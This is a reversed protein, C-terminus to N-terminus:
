WTIEIYRTKGNPDVVPIRMKKNEKEQKSQLEVQELEELEVESVPRIECSGDAQIIATNGATVSQTEIKDLIKLELEGETVIFKTQEQEDFKALFGTGKVSAVTTPTQVAFPGTDSKIQSFVSGKNLKVTKSLKKDKASAYVQVISYSFVKVTASGDIYKYAAFSEKGTRIEDNNQLFDGTKHKIMKAARHLDVKGKSASIVAVSDLALLNASLILTVALLLIKKM